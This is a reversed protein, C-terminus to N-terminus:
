SKSHSPHPTSEKSRELNTQPLWCSLKCPGRFWYLPKGKNKWCIHLLSDLKGIPIAKASKMKQLCYCWFSITQGKREHFLLFYVPDNTQDLSPSRTHRGTLPHQFLPDKSILETVGFGQASILGNRILSAGVAPKKKIQGKINHCLTM